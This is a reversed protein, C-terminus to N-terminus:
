PIRFEVDEELRFSFLREAEIEVDKGRSLLVGAAGAGGATAGGVAAGKKGGFVAGLVAGIATAAGIKAADKGKTSESEITISNTKVRYATESGRIEQVDFTASGRGKVKGPRLVELLRGKVESGRSVIVEGNVMLDGALTAEFTDGSVHSESSIREATRIEIVSGAQLVATRLAPVKPTEAVAVPSAGSTVRRPASPPILVPNGATNGLDEVPEGDPSQIDELPRPPSPVHVPETEAQAIGAPKVDSDRRRASEPPQTQKPRSERKSVEPVNPEQKAATSEVKSNQRESPDRPKKLTEPDIKPETPELTVSDAENETPSETAVQKIGALTEAEPPDNPGSWSYILLGLILIGTGILGLKKM